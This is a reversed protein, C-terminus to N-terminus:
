RYKPDDLTKLFALLAKQQDESLQLGSRPHKALNPDLTDSRNIPGSYHAIVEELSKFRGDHMYPATYSLNRLSPTKFSAGLGNDHLQHDSFNAGGHCHFCDAGFQGSRPEYETFFLKMGRQEIESLEAKGSIARDFKSDYSTLTLLFNELAFAIKEETVEGPGFAKEFDSRSTKELTAVVTDLDAAMERHDEIPQLVQERLSKARGDWFFSSNWALNFLPMSNREGTQGDIGKALARGDTFARDHHHCTACSISGDRSLTPDHFLKRGLSVREELLPNDRPLSPKPFFRSTKFPFPTFLDPLPLPPVKPITAATAPQSTEQISFSSQMNAVLTRAIPDGKRSHSSNGDSVFSLPRSGRLLERLDFSLRILSRSRLQFSSKLQVTSLHHDNALHYVFGDIETKHHRHKGELALFVYGGQWNWHLRNVNPNLPHDAPYTAPDGHNAAEPLGVSFRIAQYSGSPVNRMTFATRRSGVDILAYQDKLEMWSGDPQQFAIQSLLYSVRSFAVTEAGQYRLSNLVLPQNGFQHHVEFQITGGHGGILSLVFVLFALGPIQKRRHNMQDNKM